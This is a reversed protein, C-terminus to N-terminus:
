RAKPPGSKRSGTTLRFIMVALVLLIKIFRLIIRLTIVRRAKGKRKSQRVSRKKM